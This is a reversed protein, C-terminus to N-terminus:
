SLYTRGRRAGANKERGPPISQRWDLDSCVGILTAPQSSRGRAARGFHRGHGAARWKGRLSPGAGGAGLPVCPRRDAAANRGGGVGKHHRPGGATGCVGAVTAGFHNKALQIVMPGIGGSAGAVLVRQRRQRRQQRIKRLLGLAMLAGYPCAAAEEDRLKTPKLALVGREPVCLLEAYAGMSPGRYGFAADGKEFQTVHAGVAEVTGSFESGLIPVRPRRSGFSLRGILWFLWPMHFTRPSVTAFNRVLLDGFDVSTARVRILVDHGKAM